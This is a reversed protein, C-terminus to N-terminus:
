VRGHFQKIFLAFADRAPTEVAIENLVVSPPSTFVPIAAAMEIRVREGIAALLLDLLNTLLVADEDDTKTSM